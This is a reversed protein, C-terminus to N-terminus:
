RDELAARADECEVCACMRVDHETTIAYKLAAQCRRLCQLRKQIEAWLDYSSSLLEDTTLKELSM